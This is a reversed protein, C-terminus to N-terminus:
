KAEKPIAASLIQAASQNDSFQLALRPKGNVFISLYDGAVRDVFLRGGAKSDFWGSRFGPLGVGNVRMGVLDSPSGPVVTSISSINTLPISTSYFTSKVIVEDDRIAVSRNKMSGGIVALTLVGIAFIWWFGARNATGAERALVAGVVIPGIAVIAFLIAFSKLGITQLQM